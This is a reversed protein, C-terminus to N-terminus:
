DVLFTTLTPGGRFFSEPYTCTNDNLHLSIDVCFPASAIFICHKNDNFMICHKESLLYYLVIICYRLTCISSM